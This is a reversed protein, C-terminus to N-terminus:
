EGIEHNPARIALRAEGIDALTLDVCEVSLAIEGSEALTIIITGNPKHDGVEFKIDLISKPVNGFRPINKAKVNLVGDFSLLSWIRSGHPHKTEIEHCFRQLAVTFRRANKLYSIEKPVFLADQCVAAIIALGDTDQALLRLKAAKAKM